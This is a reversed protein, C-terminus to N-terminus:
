EFHESINKHKDVITLLTKVNVNITEVNSIGQDVYKKFFDLYRMIVEEFRDESIDEANSPYYTFGYNDFLNALRDLDKSLDNLISLREPRSEDFYSYYKDVLYSLSMDLKEYFQKFNKDIAEYLQSSKIM